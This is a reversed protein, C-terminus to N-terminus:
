SFVCFDGRVDKLVSDLSRAQVRFRDGKRLEEFNSLLDGALVIPEGGHLITVDSAFAILGVRVASGKPAAEYLERISKEIASQM